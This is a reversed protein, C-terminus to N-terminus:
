IELKKVMSFWYFFKYGMVFVLIMLFMCLVLWLIYINYFYMVALVVFFFGIISGMIMSNCLVKFEILGLWYGWFVNFFFSVFIFLILWFLYVGMGDIIENYDIFLSFLFYFFLIFFVIGVLGLVIGSVSFM